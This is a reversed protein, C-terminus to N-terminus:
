FDDPYKKNNFGPLRFVRTSDTAAPDGCETAKRQFALCGAECPPSNPPFSPPIWTRPLSKGGSPATLNSSPNCHSKACTSSSPSSGATATNKKPWGARASGRRSRAGLHYISFYSVGARRLTKAWIKRLSTTYPKKARTSPSPFVYASGPTSQIQAQFAARALETMPMDGTGSTTKSDPIHIVSNELDVESRAILKRADDRDLV